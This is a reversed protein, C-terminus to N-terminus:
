NLHMSVRYDQTAQKRINDDALMDIDTLDHLPSIYLAYLVAGLISGQITKNKFVQKKGYLVRFSLKLFTELDTPLRQRNFHKQRNTIM